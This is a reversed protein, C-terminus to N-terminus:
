WQHYLSQQVSSLYYKQREAYRAGATSSPEASHPAQGVACPLHLLFFSLFELTYLSPLTTSFDGSSMARTGAIIRELPFMIRKVFLMMVLGIALLLTSLMVRMKLLVQNVIEIPLSGIITEHLVKDSRLFVEMEVAMTLFVIGIFIIYFILQRQLGSKPIFNM